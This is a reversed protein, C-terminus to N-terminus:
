IQILQELHSPGTEGEALPHPKLRKLGKSTGNGLEFYQMGFM